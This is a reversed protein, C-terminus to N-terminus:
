LAGYEHPSEAVLCDCFYAINHCFLTHQRLRMSFINWFILSFLRSASITSLSSEVKM